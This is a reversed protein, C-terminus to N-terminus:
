AFAVLLAGVFLVLAFGSLLDSAQAMPNFIMSRDSSPTM